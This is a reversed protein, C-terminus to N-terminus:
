REKWREAFERTIELYRDGYLQSPEIHTHEWWENWSTIFIWDPDSDLAAEWTFRYFEGEQRDQVLGERTPQLTDDYGPQVTAAWIKTKPEDELLSYFRIARATDQDIGELDSYLFVGYDHLGDFYQLNGPDYGMALYFADLGNERLGAFVRGWTELPVAGSAWVVILPKGDIRYYAPQNGYQYIAYALWRSIEDEPLPDGNEGALTEFYIAVLFDKEEAISLMKRLNQDTDSGPGWWSCLFGDLGAGQAEDVHRIITDPDSSDYPELPKDKLWDGLESWSSQRYWPYYFAWLLRPSSASRVGQSFLAERDLNSLDVSFIIANEGGSNPVIGLHKFTQLPIQDGETIQSVRIESGGIDGKTLRFQLPFDVSGQDLAYDVTIGVKNGTSAADLPQNLALDHMSASYWSDEGWAEMTRLALTGEPSLLELDSWDSSTQYEVRIRYFDVVIPVEAGDATEAPHFDVGTKVTPSTSVLPTDATFTPQANEVPPLSASPAPKAAAAPSCASLCVLPILLPFYCSKMSAECDSAEM